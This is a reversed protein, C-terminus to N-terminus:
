SKGLTSFVQAVNNRVGAALWDEGRFTPSKLPAAEATAILAAAYGALSKLTAPTLEKVLQDLPKGQRAGAEVRFGLEEIYTRMQDLRERGNLVGGHGGLQKDFELLGIGTLTNPWDKPYGDGMFPLSGHALDGTAIAKRSPSWVSVDGATHGRGRFVVQLEQAKDHLILDGRVTLDPLDPTYDRMEKLFAETDSVMRQWYGLEAPNKSKGLNERYTQLSKAASDLSDKLRGAALETLLHRTTDSAIVRVHPFSKRYSLNGQTHDWHFHSNVLYAVPKPSLEKRIQAILSAAASPKSHSDVVLLSEALEFIVANCNTQAAPLSLAGTVGSAMKELIFLGGPASRSQARAAAARFVSQELLAGTTWAAGLTKRLFGRRSASLM